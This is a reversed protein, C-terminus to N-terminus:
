DRDRDRETEREREGGRGKGEEKRIVGEVRGMLGASGIAIFNKFLSMSAAGAAPASCSMSAIFREGEREGEKERGREM